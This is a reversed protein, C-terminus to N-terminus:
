TTPLAENKALSTDFQAGEATAPHLAAHLVCASIAEELVIDDPRHYMRLTM